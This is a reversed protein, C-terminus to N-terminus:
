SGIFYVDGDSASVHADGIEMEVDGRIVVVMEEARHTHTAHNTLGGNLTSVHMEFQGLMSTPRDFHQRRGGTQTPEFAVEDWDVAFSGGAAAGRAPDVGSKSRYTFEYWSAAQGGAPAIGYVDGPEVVATSGPGLERAQDGITLRIRGNRVIVMTEEEPNAFPARVNAGAQAVVVDVLLSSLDFTSGEFLMQRSVPTAVSMDTSPWRYAGSRVADTVVARPPNVFAAWHAEAEEASMTGDFVVFRYRLAYRHGPELLWDTNKTPSFNVFVDGHEHQDPPWVRLPEPHNYNAPHSMLLLGAKKGETTGQVRIWRATSADADARTRGESTIMESTDDTWGEPGRWGLGGYRYELLRLPSTAPSLESTLDVLYYGSNSPRYVRITQIENLAVEEEDGNFVVHELHVQIESFVPGDIRSLFGAFRVTGEHKALNWFDVIRGEYETQTWPNWIGYHHYHDVPQVRTLLRGAPTFLPHIFGSRAYAPDVTDPAAMTGYQYGLLVIEGSRITLLGDELRTEITAGPSQNPARRLDFYTATDGPEVIWHLTRHLGERVQFPVPVPQGDHYATLRIASDSEFAIADLDVEIPM